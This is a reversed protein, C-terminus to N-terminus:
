VILNKYNTTLAIREKLGHAGGNVLKTVAAVDDRLAHVGVKNTIWFWIASLAAIKSHEALLEPYNIVDGKSWVNFRTYNDRGTLQIYGRGRFNYGDDTGVRNGMRGGYVLNAIAKQDAPHEGMRGYRNATDADFRTPWTTRLGAPSYNLSEVLRTFGASEHHCQAMFHALELKDTIGNAKAIEILEIEKNTM